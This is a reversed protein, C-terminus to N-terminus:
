RGGLLLMRGLATGGVRGVGLTGRRMGGVSRRGMTGMDSRLGLTRGHVVGLRM